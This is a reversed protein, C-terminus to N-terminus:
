VQQSCVGGGVGLVSEDITRFTTDPSCSPSEALAPGERWALDVHYSLVGGM